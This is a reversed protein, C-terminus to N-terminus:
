NRPLITGGKTHQLGFPSILGFEQLRHQFLHVTKIEERTHSAPVEREQQQITMATAELEGEHSVDLVLFVLPLNANANWISNSIPLNSVRSLLIATPFHCHWAVFPFEGLELNQHAHRHIDSRGVDDWDDVIHPLL